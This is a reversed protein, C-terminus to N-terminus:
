GTHSFFDLRGGMRFGGPPMENLHFGGECKQDEGQDIGREDWSGMGLGARGILKRAASLSFPLQLPMDWLLMKEDESIGAGSGAVDGRERFNEESVVGIRSKGDAPCDRASRHM